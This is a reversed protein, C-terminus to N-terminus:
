KGGSKARGEEVIRGILRAAIMLCSIDEPVILNSQNKFAILVGVPDGRRDVPSFVPFAAASGFNLWRRADKSLEKQQYSLQFTDDYVLCQRLDNSVVPRKRFFAYGALSTATRRASDRRFGKLELQGEPSYYKLLDKYKIHDHRAPHFTKKMEDLIEQARTPAGEAILLKIDFGQSGPEHYWLSLAGVPQSWFALTNLAREWPNMAMISGVKRMVTEIAELPPVPNSAYPATRIRTLMQGVGSVLSALLDIRFELHWIERHRYKSVVVNFLMIGVLLTGSGVVRHWLHLTSASSDGLRSGLQRTVELFYAATILSLILNFQGPMRRWFFRRDKVAIVIAVLCSWIVAVVSAWRDVNGEGLRWVTFLMALIIVAIAANATTSISSDFGIFRSPPNRIPDELIWRHKVAQKQIKLVEDVVTEALLGMDVAVEGALPVKLGVRRCREQFQHIRLADHRSLLHESVAVALFLQCGHSVAAASSM